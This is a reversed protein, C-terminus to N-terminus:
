QQSESLSIRFPSFATMSSFPVQHRRIAAAFGAGSGIHANTRYDFLWYGLRLENRSQTAIADPLSLNTSRRSLLLKVTTSSPVLLAQLSM